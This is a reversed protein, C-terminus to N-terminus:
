LRGEKITCFGSVNATLNLQTLIPFRVRSSLVVVELTVMVGYGGYKCKLM